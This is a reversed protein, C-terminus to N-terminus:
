LRHIPGGGSPKSEVWWPRLVQWLGFKSTSRHV